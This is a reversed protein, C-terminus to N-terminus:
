AARVRRLVKDEGRDLSCWQVNPVQSLSMELWNKFASIKGRAEAQVIQAM